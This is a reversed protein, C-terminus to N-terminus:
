SQRENSFRKPANELFNMIKKFVPCFEGTPEVIWGREYIVLCKKQPHRIELKSVRGNDIGFISGVDFLKAEFTYAGIRGNCWNSDNPFNTFHIKKM